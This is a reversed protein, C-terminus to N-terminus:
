RRPNHRKLEFLPTQFIPTRRGSSWPTVNVAPDGIIEIAGRRLSPAHGTQLSDIAGYDLRCRSLRKDRRERAPKNSEEWGDDCARDDQADSQHQQRDGSPSAPPRLGAASSKPEM